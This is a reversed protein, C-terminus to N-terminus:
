LSIMFAELCVVELGIYVADFGPFCYKSVVGGPVKVEGAVDSYGLMLVCCLRPSAM